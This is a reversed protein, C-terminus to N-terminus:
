IDKKRENEIFFLLSYFLLPSLLLMNIILNDFSNIKITSCAKLLLFFELLLLIFLYIYFYSFSFGTVVPDRKEAVEVM